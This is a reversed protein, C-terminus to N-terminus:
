SNKDQPTKLESSGDPPTFFCVVVVEWNLFNCLTITMWIFFLFNRFIYKRLKHWTHVSMSVHPKQRRHLPNESAIQPLNQVATRDRKMKDRSAKPIKMVRKPPSLPETMNRPLLSPIAKSKRNPKRKTNNSKAATKQQDSNKSDAYEAMVGVVNLSVIAESIGAMNQARCWYEGADSYSIGNLSVASWRNGVRPSEQVDAPLSTIMHDSMLDFSHFYCESIHCNVLEYM